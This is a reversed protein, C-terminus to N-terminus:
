LENQQHYLCSSIRVNQRKQKEDASIKQELNNKNHVTKLVLALSAPQDSCLNSSTTALAQMDCVMYSYKTLALKVAPKPPSLARKELDVTEGIGRREELEVRVGKKKEIERIYYCCYRSLM